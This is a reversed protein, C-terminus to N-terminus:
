LIGENKWAGELQERLLKRARFLRSKATNVSTRVALAMEQTDLGQYYYLIIVERYKPALAMIAEALQPQEDKSPATLPLEEPTVRRDMRRFWASRLMDRCTNVAIRILWTKESCDGRFSSLKQYAKFFSDQAADESLMVDKLNLYCMRLVADGYTEMMRRIIEEPTRRTDM